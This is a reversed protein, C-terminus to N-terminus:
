FQTERNMKFVTKKLLLFFIITIVIKWCDLMGLLKLELIGSKLFFVKGLCYARAPLMRQVRHQKPATNEAPVEGGQNYRAMETFDTSLTFLFM